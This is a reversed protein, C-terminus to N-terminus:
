EPNTVLAPLRIAAAAIFLAVAASVAFAITLANGGAWGLTAGAAVIAGAVGTGLAVGLTESLQLSATAAGEGGIPAEALVVLAIPSYALGMGLGAVAWALVATTTPVAAQAVLIMLGIGTAILLVGVRVFTQPGVRRVRREQIWSGGTWTLTAATLAIGGILISSNRVDTVTFVVWGDTGFFAFTLLGRLAVAAPMGRALRVTGAPVLGIYARAGVIGGVVVLPVLVIPSHSSGGALVLGAGVVLALANLRRDIPVEGGPPGLAHLARTTMVGALAVLPLLGIFVWRWGFASAVGGSIAPGILGPVVWASSLVAFMRPQIEGPYARGIAVYAVAGIAGAGVGQVARATVLVVMTPALGAGVLGIGFLVLGAVFPRAPGKRDAEYGAAVVGFLSGLFFASLVWGLLGIDRLDDNIVKLITAAALGEFAVLTVTFVLGLTLARRGPSWVGGATTARAQVGWRASGRGIQALIFKYLNPDLPRMRGPPLFGRTRLEDRPQQEDIM